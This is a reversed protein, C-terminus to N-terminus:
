SCYGRPTKIAKFQKINKRAKNAVPLIAELHSFIRWFKQLVMFDIEVRM